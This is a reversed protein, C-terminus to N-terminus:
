FVDKGDAPKRRKRKRPVVAPSRPNSLNWEGKKWAPERAKKAGEIAAKARSVADGGSLRQALYQAPDFLAGDRSVRLLVWLCSRAKVPEKGAVRKYEDIVCALGADGMHTLAVAAPYYRDADQGSGPWPGPHRSAGPKDMSNPRTSIVRLDICKALLSVSEEDRHKGLLWIGLALPDTEDVEKVDGIQESKETVMRRLAKLTGARREHLATARERSLGNIGTLSLVQDSGTSSESPNHGPTKIAWVAIAVGFGGVVAGLLLHGATKM